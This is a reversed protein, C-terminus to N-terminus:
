WYRFERRPMGPVLSSGALRSVTWWRRTITSWTRGSNLIVRGVRSQRCVGVRVWTSQRVPILRRSELVTGLAVRICRLVATLLLEDKKFQVNDMLDDYGCNKHESVHTM